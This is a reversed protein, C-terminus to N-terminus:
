LLETHVWDVFSFDRGQRIKIGLENAIDLIYECMIKFRAIDNWDIPYPAIDIALSPMKNHKSDPWQLKSKGEKFAKNQEAEGRHGCLVTVDMRHILEGAILQLREDCEHIRDLSRKSYKAM